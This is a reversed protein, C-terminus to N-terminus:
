VVSSNRYRMVCVSVMGNISISKIITRIKMVYSSIIRRGGLHRCMLM